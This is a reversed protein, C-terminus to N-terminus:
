SKVSKVEEIFWKYIDIFKQFEAKDVLVSLQISPRASIRDPSIDVGEIQNLKNLLELRKQESDFPPKHKHWQFYIEVTGTTWLAFLFHEVGLHKFVPVISGRRGAGFWIRTMQPKLWNLLQRVVDAERVGRQASLETLFTEETWNSDKGKNVGKTTDATTTQGIVRPVLTKVNDQGVFQKIELGLIEAPTMQENLFEIIRQLEKPISDAIILMRIKGAKLNTKTLEWFTESENEGQLFDQLTLLSDKGVSKCQEDFRHIIEEITWYTVANAAYDLVQGIVERRIRTDTSRKVEVLTPIGDQDIFLHDLSWRGGADKDDPVRFERSILLWRRPRISNIQSGSILNPYDALLQQLLDESMYHAENLETLKGSNDLHFITESM